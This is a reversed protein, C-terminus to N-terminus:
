FRAPRKFVCFYAHTWNRTGTSDFILVDENNGVIAPEMHVLEWGEEGLTNLQPILRQPAYRPLEAAVEYNDRTKREEARLFGTWYEWKISETM